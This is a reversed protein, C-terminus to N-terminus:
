IFLSPVGSVGSSTEIEIDGAVALIVTPVDLVNVTVLTFVASKVREAGDAAPHTLLPTLATAHVGVAVPVYVTVIVAVASVVFFAVAVKVAVAAVTM